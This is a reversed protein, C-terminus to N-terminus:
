RAIRKNVSRVQVPQDLYPAIPSLSKGVTKTWVSTRFLDWWGVDGGEPTYLYFGLGPLNINGNSLITGTATGGAAYGNYVEVLYDPSLAGAGLMQEGPITLTAFDGNFIGEIPTPSGLLGNILVKNAVTAHATITIDLELEIPGDWHSVLSGIVYDGLILDRKYGYSLLWKIEDVPIKANASGYRTRFSASDVALSITEGFIPTRPPKITVVNDAFSINAQPVEVIVTTAGMKYNVRVKKQDYAVVNGAGRNFDMPLDYHLQIQFNPDQVAEATSPLVATYEIPDFAIRWFLGALDGAETLGSNIGAYFNGAGDRIADASVSLFVYQGPLPEHTQYVIVKDNDVRISDVPVDTFAFTVINLYRFVIGAKNHVVVREDFNLTVSFDTARSPTSSVGPTTSKLTPAVADSSKFSMGKIDGAVGDVSTSLAFISYDTNPMLGTVVLQGTLANALVEFHYSKVAQAGRKFQLDEASPVPKDLGPIVAVSLWGAAGLTYNLTFTSDQVNSISAELAPAGVVSVSEYKEFLENECATFFLLGLVVGFYILVNKPRKM